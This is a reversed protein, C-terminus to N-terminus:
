GHVPHTRATRGARVRGVADFCSAAEDASAAAGTHQHQGGEFALTPNTALGARGHHAATLVVFIVVDASAM